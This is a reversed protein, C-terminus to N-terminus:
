GRGRKSLIREPLYGLQTAAMGKYGEPAAQLAKQKRARLAKLVADARESLTSQTRNQRANSIADKRM